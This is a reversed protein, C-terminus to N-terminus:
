LPIRVMANTIKRQFYYLIYIKVMGWQTLVIFSFNIKKEKSPMTSYQIIITDLGIGCKVQQAHKTSAGKIM